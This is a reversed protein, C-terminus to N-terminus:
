KKTMKNYRKVEKLLTITKTIRNYRKVEKLLTQLEEVITNSQREKLWLLHNGNYENERTETKSYNAYDKKSQAVAKELQKILITELNKM